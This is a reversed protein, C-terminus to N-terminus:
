SEEFNREDEIEISKKKQKLLSKEFNGENEEM